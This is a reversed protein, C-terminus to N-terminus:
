TWGGFQAVELATAVERNDPCSAAVQTLLAREAELEGGGSLLPAVQLALHGHDGYAIFEPLRAKVLMAARRPKGKAKFANAELVVAHLNAPEAAQLRRAFQIGLNPSRAQNSVHALEGMVQVPLDARRVLRQLMWWARWMRGDYCYRHAVQRMIDLSGPAAAVARKVARRQKGTAKVWQYLEATALWLPATFDPRGGVLADLENEVTRLASQDGAAVAIRTRLFALHAAMDDPALMMVDQWLELASRHQGAQEMAAAIAGLRVPDGSAAAKAQILRTFAEARNGAALLTHAAALDDEDSM